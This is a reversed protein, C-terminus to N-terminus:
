QPTVRIKVVALVPLKAVSSIEVLWANNLGHFLLHFSVLVSSLSLLLLLWFAPYSVTLFLILRCFTLWNSLVTVNIERSYLYKM